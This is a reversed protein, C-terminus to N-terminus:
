KGVSIYRYVDELSKKKGDWHRWEYQIGARGGKRGNKSKKLENKAMGRSGAGEEMIICRNGKNEM